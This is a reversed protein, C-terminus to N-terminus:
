EKFTSPLPELMSDTDQVSSGEGAELDGNTQETAEGKDGWNIKFRTVRPQDEM